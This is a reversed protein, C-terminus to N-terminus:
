EAPTEEEAPMAADLAAKANKVAVEKAAVVAKQAEIQAKQWAIMDEWSMPEDNVWHWSLLKEAEKIAEQYEKIRNEYREILQALNEAGQIGNNYNLISNIAQLEADTETMVIRADVVAKWAEVVPAYAAKNADNYAKIKEQLATDQNKVIDLIQNWLALENNWDEINNKNNEISNKLGVETNLATEYEAKKTDKDAEAAEDWAKKAAATAKVAEAYATEDTKIAEEAAKINAEIPEIYNSARLEISRFDSDYEYEYSISDGIYTEYDQHEYNIGYSYYQVNRFVNNWSADFMIANYIQNNDNWLQYWAEEEANYYEGNSVLKKFPDEEIALRLEELKESDVDENAKNYATNAAYYKDSALNYAVQAETQQKKLADIDETYNTYQKYQNIYLKQIEIQNNYNAVTEELDEKANALNTEWSALKSEMWILEKKANLLDEVAWAYKNALSMLEAKEQDNYYKTQQELQKKTNLLDAQAKLLAAQITIEQQEIEGQIRALEKEAEKQEVLLRAAEAENETEKLAAQAEKLKAAAINAEAQAEKLAISAADVTAQAEAEAKQLAAISKMEETKANRIATVSTSEEDDVCSTFFPSAVLAGALAYMALFKKKM